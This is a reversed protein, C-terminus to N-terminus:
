INIIDKLLVIQQRKLMKMHRLSTWLFWSPHESPFSSSHESVANDYIKRISEPGGAMVLLVSTVGPQAKREPSLLLAIM